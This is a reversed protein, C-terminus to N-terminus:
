YQKVSVWKNNNDISEAAAELIAQTQLGDKFTAGIEGVNKDNAVCDVFHFMANAHHAEWGLMHGPPWYYEVFEHEGPETAIINRFGQAHDPDETSYFNLENNRTLDFHLAGKSGHVEIRWISKAGTAFRSAELSGVAGNEFEMWMLAADDVTVEGYEDSAKGSLGSAETPIPRKKIFTKDWSTVRDVELGTLFRAMDISHANLDGQVGSGAIDEKMRWSLPFEPDILFDQLFNARFHHIEGIRGEKILRRALLVAPSFRNSFCVLNKVDHKEAEQAANFMEEAENLNMAIPKEVITHKGAKLAEVCPEKHINNPGNNDFIDVDEDEILDKWNTTAYEYGLKEAAKKVKEESRGCIGKLVPVAPVPDMFYTLKKFGNTHAKGMFAYGLM